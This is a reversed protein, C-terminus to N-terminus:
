APVAVSGSSVVASGLRVPFTPSTRSTPSTLPQEHRHRVLGALWHGVAVPPIAVSTALMRAIEDATRPGPSIRTWAFEATGAAWLAGAASAAVPRRLLFGGLATMAAGTIVVHRLRRGPPSGARRGWGAGHLRRMLVDDANGRQQGISAHWPAPRVPHEVMRRGQAIQYGAAVVRLAIDSDERYARRFREDFGGLESLVDRRYAMDATIWQADALGATGREWDTPRRDPPLPVRVVGSIGATDAGTKGIDTALDALWNPGVMVDDDLFAVWAVRRSSSAARWGANRAAAPGRGGSHVIRLRSALHAPVAGTCLPGNPQARDDVVILQAPAPGASAALSQLLAALSPRGVTPIVIAIPPAAAVSIDGDPLRSM